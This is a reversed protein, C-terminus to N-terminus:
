VVSKRDRDFDFKFYCNNNAESRSIACKFKTKGEKIEYMGNKNTITITKDFFDCIRAFETWAINIEETEAPQIFDAVLRAYDVGNSMIVTYLEDNLPKIQVALDRRATGNAAIKDFCLRKIRRLDSIKIM